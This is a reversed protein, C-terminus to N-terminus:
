TGYHYWYAGKKQQQLLQAEIRKSNV